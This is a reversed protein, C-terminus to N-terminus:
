GVCMGPRLDSIDRLLFLLGKNEGSLTQKIDPTAYLVYCQGLMTTVPVSMRCCDETGLTYNKFRCQLM